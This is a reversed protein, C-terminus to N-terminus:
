RRKGGGFNRVSQFHVSFYNAAARMARAVLNADRDPIQELQMRMHQPLKTRCQRCLANGMTKDFNCRPCERKRALAGVQDKTLHM